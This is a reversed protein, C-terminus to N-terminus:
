AASRRRAITRSIARAALRSVQDAAGGRGVERRRDDRERRPVPRLPQRLEPEGDDRLHGTQDAVPHRDVHHARPLAIPDRARRHVLVAGRRRRGHRLAPPIAPPQRSASARRWTGRRHPPSPRAHADTRGLIRAIPIRTTMGSRGSREAQTPEEDRREDADRANSNAAHSPCSGGRRRATWTRASRGASARTGSRTASGARAGSRAARSSRARRGPRAVLPPHRRLGARRLEGVREPDDAARRAHLPREDDHVHAVEDTGLRRRRVLSVQEVTSRQYMLSYACSSM